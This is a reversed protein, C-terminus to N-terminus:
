RTLLSLDRFTAQEASVRIEMRVASVQRAAFDCALVASGAPFRCAGLPPWIAAPQGEVAPAYLQVAEV